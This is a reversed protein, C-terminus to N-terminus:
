KHPNTSNLKSWFKSKIPHKSAEVEHASALALLERSTLTGCMQCVVACHPRFKHLGIAEAAAHSLVGHIAGNARRQARFLISSCCINEASSFGRRCNIKPPSLGMAETIQPCFVPSFPVLFPPHPAVSTRSWLSQM